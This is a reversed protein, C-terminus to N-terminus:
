DPTYALNLNCGSPTTLVGDQRVSRSPPRHAAHRVVQVVAVRLVVAGVRHV